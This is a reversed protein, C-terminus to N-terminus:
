DRRGDLLETKKQTNAYWRKWTPVDFEFNVHALRILADLVDRNQLQQKVIKSSGGFSFAGGGSGGGPPPNQIVGNADPRAFTQGMGGPNGTTVLFKHSTVLAEILPAIAAPDELAGLAAAARNVYENNKHKLSRALLQVAAPLQEASVVEIASLRVESDPDEVMVRVLTGIAGPVPIKALAEVLCQRGFSDPGSKLWQDLARLAYPDDINRIRDAAAPRLAPDELEQTWKRLRNIWEQEAQKEKEGRREIEIQQATKYRGGDRVYGREAMIQERTKWQQNVLQYGLLRRADYHNGDLAIVRELHDRRQADLKHQKCWEALAWQGEVTEPYDPRVREYESVALAQREVRVVQAKDLTVQVGPETEIIYQRRPTEDKNLWTGQVQGENALFFIDAAAPTAFVAVCLLAAASKVVTTRPLRPKSASAPM